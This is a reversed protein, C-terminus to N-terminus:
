SFVIDVLLLGLSFSHVFKAAIKDFLIKIFEKSLEFDNWNNKTFLFPYSWFLRLQLQILTNPRSAVEKPHHDHEFSNLNYLQLKYM